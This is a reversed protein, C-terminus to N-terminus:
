EHERKIICVSVMCNECFIAGHSRDIIEMSLVNKNCVQCEGEVTEFEWNVNNIVPPSTISHNM